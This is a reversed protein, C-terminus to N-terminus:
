IGGVIVGEVLQALDLDMKCDAEADLDLFRGASLKVVGLV